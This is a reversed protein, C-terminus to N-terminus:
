LTLSIGCSYQKMNPYSALTPIEPDYWKFGSLYFLNTGNVFVRVKNVGVHKLINAPIEYGLSLNKLRIFGGNEYWFSSTMTSNPDSPAPITPYKGNPNEPPTPLRKEVIM